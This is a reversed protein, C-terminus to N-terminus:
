LNVVGQPGRAQDRPEGLPTRMGQFAENALSMLRMGSLRFRLADKMILNVVYKHQYFDVEEQIERLSRAEAVKEVLRSENFLYDQYFFRVVPMIIRARRFLCKKLVFPVFKKEELHHVKCVAEKLTVNHM